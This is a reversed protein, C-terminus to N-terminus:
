SFSNSTLVYALRLNLLFLVQVVMGAGIMVYTRRIWPMEIWQRKAQSVNRPLTLTARLRPQHILEKQACSVSLLQMNQAQFLAIGFPLYISMIWFEAGCPFRPRLAHVLWIIVVYVHITSTAIVGLRVNRMRIFYQHRNRHLIYFGLLLIFTWVVAITIYVTDVGDLHTEPTRKVMTMEMTLTQSCLGSLARTYSVCHKLLLSPFFLPVDPTLSRHESSSSFSPLVYPLFVRM